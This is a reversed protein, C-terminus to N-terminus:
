EKNNATDKSVSCVIDEDIEQRSRYKMDIKKEFLPLLIYSKVIEIFKKSNTANLYIARQKPKKKPEPKYIHCDIDYKEKLWEKILIQEPESFCHTALKLKRDHTRYGGKANKKKLISLYGDDMYWMAIGFPTLKDLLKRTINKKGNLYMMNYIKTFYKLSRTQIRYGHYVKDVKKIYTKTKSLKPDSGTINSIIKSKMKLYELQAPCHDISLRYNIGTTRLNADGLLMGIISSKIEKANLRNFM